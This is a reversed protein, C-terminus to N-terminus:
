RGFGFLRAFFDLIRAGIGRERRFFPIDEQTLLAAEGLREGDLWYTVRGVVRGPLVPAYLFPETEVRMQIDAARGVPILAQVTGREILETMDSEGGVVPVRVQLSGPTLTVNEVGSFGQNMMRKHDNWDDPANLTVAVLQIGNRECCSVLCRGSKKTFGTKVGICGDMERLLRNHNYFTRRVSSNVFDVTMSQKSVIAAFEPNQMAACALLALDYATTYHADDDLGSATVFHTGTMGLEAARRNMRQAFSAESGDLMIAIALAADNGSEQMLGVVLSRLSLQDGIKLYISSGETQIMPATVTVVEDLRESEMALLATMIKTTSAMSRQENPNKAILVRRSSVEMVVASAASVDATTVDWAADCPAPGILLVSLVAAFIGRGKKM